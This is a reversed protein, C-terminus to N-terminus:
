ISYFFIKLIVRKHILYRVTLIESKSLIHVNVTNVYSVTYNEFMSVRSKRCEVVSQRPTLHRQRRIILGFSSTNVKAGGKM